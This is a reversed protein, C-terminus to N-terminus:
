CHMEDSTTDVCEGACERMGGDDPICPTGGDIPTGGDTRTGADIPTGGDVGRGADIDADVGRGGDRRDGGDRANGADNRSTFLSYDNLAVCGSVIWPILAARLFFARM